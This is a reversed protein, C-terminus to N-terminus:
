KAAGDSNFIDAAVKWQGDVKKWVVVYKGVDKVPGKDGDFSLAYTGIDYALDGGASVTVETPAFTLDINKMGLLGQWAAAVAASGKAIPANQALLAGDAAYFGASAAADKAQVAAVWQQDLARIKQEDASMDARAAGMAALLVGTVMALGPMVAAMRSVLSM